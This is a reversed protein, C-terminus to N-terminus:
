PIYNSKWLKYLLLSIGDLSDCFGYFDRCNNGVLLERLENIVDDLRNILDKMKENFDDAMLAM